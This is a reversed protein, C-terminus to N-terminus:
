EAVVPSRPLSRMAAEYGSRKVARAIAEEDHKFGDSDRPAMAELYLAVSTCLYQMPVLARGDHGVAAAAWAGEFAAWFRTAASALAIGREHAHPLFNAVFPVRDKGVRVLDMEQLCMEAESFSSLAQYYHEGIMFRSAIQNLEATALFDAKTKTILTPQGVFLFFVRYRSKDLENSINLLWRYHKETLQQAEDFFLIVTRIPSRDAWSVLRETLRDRKDGVLGKDYRPDGMCHLIHQFFAGARAEKNEDRCPIESWPVHKGFAVRLKNLVWRTGYTKGWRTYGVVCGGLLGVTLWEVLVSFLVEAPPTKITFARGAIVKSALDSVGSRSEGSNTSM